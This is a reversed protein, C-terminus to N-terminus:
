SPAGRKLEEITEIGLLFICEYKLTRWFREVYVNDAWRGKGDMSIIIDNQILKHTWEHCTFQSGQDTNFIAPKGYKAIAKDLCSICGTAELTNTIEYALVQRSFIDLIAIVYMMGTPLKCYTIDTAWVLNSKYIYMGSLWYPYKYKVDGIKSLNRKPLIGKIGLVRMLRQIRKRNIPLKDYYRLEETIVRSGKNNRDNWIDEIRDKLKLNFQSEPVKNYYLNSRNISL